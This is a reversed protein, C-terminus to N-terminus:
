STAYKPYLRHFQGDSGALKGSGLLVCELFKGSGSLVCKLFGKGISSVVIL